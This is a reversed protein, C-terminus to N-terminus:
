LQDDKFLYYNIGSELILKCLHISMIMIMIMFMLIFLKLMLMFLYIMIISRILFLVFIIQCFKLQYVFNLNIIFIFVLGLLWCQLVNIKIFQSYPIFDIFISYHNAYTITPLHLYLDIFIPTTLLLLKIIITITIMIFIFAMKITIIFHPILILLFLYGQFRFQFKCKIFNFLIFYTLDNTITFNPCKKLKLCSQFYHKLVLLRPYILLLPYFTALNFILYFILMLVFIFMFSFTL